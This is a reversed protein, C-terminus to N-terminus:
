RHQLHSDSPESPTADPTKKRLALFLMVAAFVILVVGWKLNMNIGMSIDTQNVPGFVGVAVLILGFIGFMMGLPLRLDLQM